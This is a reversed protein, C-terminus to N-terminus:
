VCQVSVAVTSTLDQYSTSHGQGSTSTSCAGGVKGILEDRTQTLQDLEQQLTGIEEQTKVRDPHQQIVRALSDYQQRNRRIEIASKLQERAKCINDQCEGIGQEATTPVCGKSWAWKCM